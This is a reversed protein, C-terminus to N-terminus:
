KAGERSIIIRSVALGKENEWEDVRVITLIAKGKLELPSANNRDLTLRIPKIVRWVQGNATKKSGKFQTKGEFEISLIGKSKVVQERLDKVADGYVAAGQETYREQTVLDIVRGVNRHTFEFSELLTQNAWKSVQSRSYRVDNAQITRARQVEGDQSINYIEKTTSTFVALFAIVCLSAAFSIALIGLAKYGAEMKARMFLRQIMARKDPALEATVANVIQETTLQKVAAKNAKAKKDSDAM